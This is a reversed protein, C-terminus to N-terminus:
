AVDRGALTEFYRATNVAELGAGGGAMAAQAPSVAGYPTGLLNAIDRAEADQQASALKMQEIAFASETARGKAFVASAAGEAQLGSVSGFGRRQGVASTGRATSTAAQFTGERFDQMFPSATSRLNGFLENFHEPSRVTDLRGSMEDFFSKQRNAGLFQSLGGIAAGAFM